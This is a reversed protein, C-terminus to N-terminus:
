PSKQWFPESKRRPSASEMDTQKLVDVLMPRVATGHRVPLRAALSRIRDGAQTLSGVPQWDPV